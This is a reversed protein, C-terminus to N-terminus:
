LNEEIQLLVCIVDVADALIVEEWEENFLMIIWQMILLRGTVQAAEPFNDCINGFFYLSYKVLEKDHEKIGQQFVQLIYILCHHEALTRRLETCTAINAFCAIAPRIIDLDTYEQLLKNLHAVVNCQVLIRKGTDNNSIHCIIRLIEKM